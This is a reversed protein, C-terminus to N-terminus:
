GPVVAAFDLIHAAAAALTAPLRMAIIGADVARATAATVPVTVSIPLGTIEAVDHATLARGPEEILVIGAAPPAQHVARGLALYCARTVLLTTGESAAGDYVVMDPTADGTEGLTLGPIVTGCDPGVALIAELADRDEGDLRVQLGRGAAAMAVACATVSTGQGGKVQMLNIREM